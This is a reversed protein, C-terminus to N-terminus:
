KKPVIGTEQGFYDALQQIASAMQANQTARFYTDGLAKLTQFMFRDMEMVQMEKTWLDIKLTDKQNKDFLSLLMAKADQMGKNKPDDSAQWTIDSPHNKEDLTVKINIETSKM